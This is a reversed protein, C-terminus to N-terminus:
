HGDCKSYQHVRFCSTRCNHPKIFFSLNYMASHHNNLIVLIDKIM